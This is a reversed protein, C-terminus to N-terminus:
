ARAAAASIGAVFRPLLPLPLDHGMGAIFDAEAGRVHRALHHGAAVPIL